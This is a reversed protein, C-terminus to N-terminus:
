LPALEQTLAAVEEEDKSDIKTGIFRIITAGAMFWCIGCAHDLYIVDFSTASLKYVLELIERAASLLQASSYDDPLDLQAHPDHLQIMALLPDVTAGVPQRLARPISQVFASLTRDLSQFEETQTPAIAPDLRRLKCQVRYRANFSRVKSVLVTAKIYITWSDTTLSPHHLLMNDTFLQQRGQIPVFTAHEGALSDWSYLDARNRIHQVNIQETSAGQLLQLGRDNIRLSPKMSEAAWREHMAGFGEPIPDLIDEVRRPFYHRGQPGLTVEPRDMIASSLIRVRDIDNPMKQPSQTLVPSYISALACIAHLLAVHAAPTLQRHNPLAPPPFNFEIESELTADVPQLGLAFPLPSSSSSTETITQSNPIHAAGCTCQALRDNAVRLLDHLEAIESKLVTIRAKPGLVKLDPSDYTCAPASSAKLPDDRLAQEHSKGTVRRSHMLSGHTSIWRQLGIVTGVQYRGLTGPAASSGARPM